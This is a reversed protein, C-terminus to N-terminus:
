DKKTLSPTYKAASGMNKERSRDGDISNTQDSYMKVENKKRSSDMLEKNENAKTTALNRIEDSATEYSKNKIVSSEITDVFDLANNEKKNVSYTTEVMSESILVGNNDVSSGNLNITEKKSYTSVILKSADKINDVKEGKQNYYQGLTKSNSISVSRVPEPVSVGLIKGIFNHNVKNGDKVASVIKTSGAFSKNPATIRYNKINFGVSNVGRSFQSLVIRIPDVGAMGTPDIFKIPNQYCYGYADMTKEVLPDM